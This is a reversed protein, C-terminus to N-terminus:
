PRKSVTVDNWPTLSWFVYMKIYFFIINHPIFDPVSIQLFIHTSRHENEWLLKKFDPKRKVKKPFFLLFFEDSSALIKQAQKSYQM